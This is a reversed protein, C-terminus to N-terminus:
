SKSACMGSSKFQSVLSILKEDESSAVDRKCLSPDTDWDLVRTTGFKDTAFLMYIPYPPKHMGAVTFRVILNRQSINGALVKEIHVKSRVYGGIPISEIGDHADHVWEAPIMGDLFIEGPALGALVKAYAYSFPKRDIHWTKYSEPYDADVLLNNADFVFTAPSLGPTNVVAGATHFDYGLRSYGGDGSTWWTPQGFVAVVDRKTSVGARFTNLKALDFALRSDAMDRETPEALMSGGDGVYPNAPTPALCGTATAALLITLLLEGVNKM